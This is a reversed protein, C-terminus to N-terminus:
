SGNQVTLNRYTLVELSCYLMFLIPDLKMHLPTHLIGGVGGARKELLESESECRKFWDERVAWNYKFMMQLLCEEKFIDPNQMMKKYSVTYM